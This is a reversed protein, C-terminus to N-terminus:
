GMMGLATVFGACALGFTALTILVAEILDQTYQYKCKIM